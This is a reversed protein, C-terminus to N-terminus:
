SLLPATISDMELKYKFECDALKVKNNPEANSNAEKAKKNNGICEKYKTGAFEIGAEMKGM